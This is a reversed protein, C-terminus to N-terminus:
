RNPKKNVRDIIRKQKRNLNGYTNIITNVTQVTTGSFNAIVDNSIGYNKLETIDITFLEKNADHSKEIKKIENKIKEIDAFKIKDSWRQIGL